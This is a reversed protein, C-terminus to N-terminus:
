STTCVGKSKENNRMIRAIDWVSEDYIVMLQELLLQHLGYPGTVTDKDEGESLVNLMNWALSKPTNFCLLMNREESFTSIFSMEYWRYQTFDVDTPTARITKARISKVIMRFWTEVGSPVSKIATNSLTESIKTGFFGNHQVCAKDWFMRPISPFHECLEKRLPIDDLFHHISSFSRPTLM